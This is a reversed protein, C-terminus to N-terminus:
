VSSQLKSNLLVCDVGNVLTRYLSSYILPINGAFINLSYQWVTHQFYKTQHSFPFYTGSKMLSYNHIYFVILLLM